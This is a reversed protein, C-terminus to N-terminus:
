SDRMFEVKLLLTPVLAVEICCLGSGLNEVGIIMCM